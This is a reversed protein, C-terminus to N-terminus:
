LFGPFVLRRKTSYSGVGKGMRANQGKKFLRFITGVNVKAMVRGLRRAPIKRLRTALFKSIRMRYLGLGAAFLQWGPMGSFLGQSRLRLRANVRRYNPRSTPVM